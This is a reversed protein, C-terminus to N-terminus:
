NTPYFYNTDMASDIYWQLTKFYNNLDKRSPHPIYCSLGCYTKIEYESLFMPTHAKYVVAKKLQDTFISKDTGPFVTDVFDALDFCYQEEYVDLRQVTSRNFSSLDPTNVGFLENMRSGLQELYRTEIVSITASRYAGELNNYYDYYYEGVRKFDIEPKVLEPIIMDYPFGTYITETSSAIIFDTKDKLEYAVEISGMLCADMLIFNFKLPLSKALEPINIGSINGSGADKGFSRLSMGAPLWSTGHSWLILGYEEAPYLRIIEGTVEALTIPDASDLEPYSKVITEKEKEIKLLYPPKDTMDVFVILNDRTIPFGQKMEEIDALADTSLDNDAAMYVIITRNVPEPNLLEEKNCSIAIFVILFLYVNFIKLM